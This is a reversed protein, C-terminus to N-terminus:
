KGLHITRDPALSGLFAADPSIALVAGDYGALAAELAAISDLDLHNTPEDLMLLMPPPTAGLACALGARLREGGSLECADRLADAARFGFRALAAHAMHTDAVPNLRRFNDRLTLASDLLRAHQDLLAFPLNLHKSSRHKRKM